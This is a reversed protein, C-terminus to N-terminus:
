GHLKRELGLVAAQSPTMFVSRLDRRAGQGDRIWPGVSVVYSFKSEDAPALRPAVAASLAAALTARRSLHKVVEAM